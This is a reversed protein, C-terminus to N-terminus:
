SKISARIRNPMPLKGILNPYREIIASIVVSIRVAIIVKKQLDWEIIVGVLKNLQSESFISLAKSDDHLTWVGGGSMGYLDPAIFVNGSGNTVKEKDFDL